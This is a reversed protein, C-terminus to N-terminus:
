QRRALLANKAHMPNTYNLLLADPCIGEMTHAIHVMGKMARMAHFKGGSLIAAASVQRATM